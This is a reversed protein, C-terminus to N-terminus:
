GEEESQASKAIVSAALPATLYIFCVLLITKVIITFSGFYLGIGFLILLIGFSTAKTAAHIRTMLDPLRLLGIAAVLIFFAGLFILISIILGLM